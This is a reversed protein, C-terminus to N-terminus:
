NTMLVEGQYENVIPRLDEDAILLKADADKMMFNLREAPYSPDLPQYACGAKLVGMSAIVMWESRPILIPIVDENLLPGLGKTHRNIYAAICDSIEDVEKYTYRRDHYVVAINDPHLEVQKRFLSVITQTDDYAVETANFSDLLREGDGNLLSVQLLNCEPTQIFAKIATVVASAAMSQMLGESYRGNDYEITVSPRGDYDQIYFALRFKPVNLELNEMELQRGGVTYRSLVGIQYAFMIEATLDYDAAIQAFPYNEHSLTADFQESVTRLFDSVPRDNVKTSLVLTNVFM